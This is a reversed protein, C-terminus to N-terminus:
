PASGASGPPYTPDRDAREALQEAIWRKAASATRITGAVQERRLSRLLDGMGPGPSVGFERELDNGDILPELLWISSGESVALRALMELQDGSGRALAAAVPWASRFRDIFLRARAEDEPLQVPGILRKAADAVARTMYGAELLQNLRRGPAQPAAETLLLAQHLAVLDHRSPAAVGAELITGLREAVRGLAGPLGVGFDASPTRSSWLSPFLGHDALLHGTLCRPLRGFIGDLETRVREAAVTGIREAGSRAADTTTPDIRFGPLDLAFRVLRLTRVPDETFREPANSRLIGSLIDSLGGLPDVPKGSALDVAISNVTLDRRLLEDELSGDRPDCVDLVRNNVVVRYTAFREAGMQVLRGDLRRALRRAAHGARQEVILDWDPSSRELALWDRVAGGVLYCRTPALAAVIQDRLRDSLLERIADEPTM